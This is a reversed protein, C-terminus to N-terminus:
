AQPQDGAQEPAAVGPAVRQAARFVVGSLREALADDKLIEADLEHSLAALQREDLQNVTEDGLIARLVQM